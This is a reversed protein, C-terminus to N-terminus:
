RLAHVGAVVLATWAAALATERWGLRRITQRDPHSRLAHRVTLTRWVYFPTIAALLLLADFPSVGGACAASPAAVSLTVAGLGLAGPSLFGHRSAFLASLVAPPIAAAAYVLFSPDAGGLLAMLPLSILVVGIAVRRKRRRSSALASALLFAGAFGAGVLTAPALDSRNATLMGALIAALLYVWAGHARAPDPARGIM